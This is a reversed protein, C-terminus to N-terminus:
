RRIKNFENEYLIFLNQVGVEVDFPTGIIKKYANPEKFLKKNKIELIKNVWIDIGKYIPLFSILEEILIIERTINESFISPLGAAQAELAVHPLGERLSPLVFVDFVNKMLQSVKKCHGLFKVKSTLSLEKVKKEIKNKLPGDGCLILFTNNDISVIKNFIEILFLHNKPERFSGVHGIIFADMPINLSERTIQSEKNKFPELDIGTYLVKYKPDEYWNPGFLSIAASKSVALGLTSYRHILYQSLKYYYKRYLKSGSKIISIDSHSHAIRIPINNKYALWLVYGSFHHLRSHIIHYPGNVDIIKKFNNFSKLPNKFGDWYLIKSGLSIIEDDFQGKGRKTVLFDFHFKDYNMRRLAQMVGTEAGGQNMQSFVHLIKIM